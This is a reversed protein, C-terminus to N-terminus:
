ATIIDSLDVVRALEELSTHGERVHQLGAEALTLYGQKRAASLLERPTASRAIVEDIELNCRLLEMIAFRGRYGQQDCHSCGNPNHQALQAAPDDAFLRHEPAQASSPQKCHPCLRRILRQAVIGILNGAVIGPAVGMDLLRPLAAIASNAHLTSFVQHGTMAARFAMAATEEDRIEGVLIIDPDQRMMSRIGSSFDLKSAENLSTQRILPLPYEVPDELTMIHVGENNLQSLISYLTSTKGSGTPGTLLIIGEPRALMRRLTQLQVGELGLAPLPIIGQSRDLIRLVINEGHLTPQSAARLDIERGAVRLGFRGDQPARTEAINMGSLVKIRVSMAPWLTHHLARIQRLQGDIRYRIRLFGAEPEFHIDSANRKIADRLIADILRIYPQSLEAEATSARSPSIRGSEIEALIDEIQLDHGYHRDIAREIEAEGALQAEIHRVEPFLRHIHDQPLLNHVDAMALTLHGSESEYALPVLHHQRAFEVPIRALLQLDVHAQEPFCIACGTQEALAQKLASENIFGLAVLQRGLRHHTIRQEHLAIQLQDPNLDGQRILVEGLRQRHVSIM